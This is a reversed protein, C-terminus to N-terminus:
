DKYRWIFGGAHSYRKRKKCCSVINAHNIGTQREAENIAHYEAIYEGDTTYQIVKKQDYRIKGSKHDNSGKIDNDEWRMVQINDITYSLNDDKRDISPVDEKKMGRMIWNDYIEHFEYQDMIWKKFEMKTYTPVNSKRRKCRQMQSDYLKLAVGHKTCRLKEKIIKECDKCQAKEKVIRNKIKTFRNINKTIGCTSCKKTLQM